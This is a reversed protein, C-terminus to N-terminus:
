SGSLRLLLLQGSEKPINAGVSPLTHAQVNFLWTGEGLWSSADIIGTSEWCTGAVDDCTPNTLAAVARGHTLGARTYGFQWVQPAREGAFTSNAPDENVM